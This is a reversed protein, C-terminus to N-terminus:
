LEKFDECLKYYTNVAKSVGRTNKLNHAIYGLRTKNDMIKVNYEGSFGGRERFFSNIGRTLGCPSNYESRYVIVNNDECIVTFRKNM